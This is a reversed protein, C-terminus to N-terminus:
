LNAHGSASRNIINQLADHLVAMEQDTGITIRIFQDVRPADFYRVIINRERLSQYLGAAPETSHRAFLFNAQSPLVEFGLHQLQRRTRERTEIVKAVNEEFYLRDRFAASAGAIALKSLAYPHFSNKVRELAEVLQADGIALGVRLGALSRSKSLTQIVLLNPFEEVMSVASFDAFDGYAEDVVVVSDTNRQLLKRLEQEPALMGTPANPNAFIIGGNDARYDQLAISFDSRLPVAQYDIELLKCYVPYFSYTIDPFLLPQDHKLLARFTHGLVEDSSNGVFVQETHLQYFDAIAQKLQQANPDPYKRLDDSAAERIADLVRPSPGYPNENTNLKVLNNLQPQEGPTYPTLESVITSWFRSM